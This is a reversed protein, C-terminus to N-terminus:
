VRVLSGTVGHVKDGFAVWDAPRHGRTSDAADASSATASSADASSANSLMSLLSDGSAREHSLVALTVAVADGTISGSTHLGGLYQAVVLWTASSM